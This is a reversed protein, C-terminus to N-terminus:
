ATSSENQEGVLSLKDMIKERIIDVDNIAIQRRMRTIQSLTWKESNVDVSTKVSIANWFGCKFIATELMLLM